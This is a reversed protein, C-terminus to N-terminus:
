LNLPWFTLPLAVTVAEGGNLSLTAINDCDGNGYDLYEDLENPQGNKLSIVAIVGGQVRRICTFPKIVPNNVDIDTKFNNIEDGHSTQKGVTHGTIEYANNIGDKWNIVTWTANGTFNKSNGNADSLTKNLIHKYVDQGTGNKIKNIQISGEVLTGNVHYNEYTTYTFEGAADEAAKFFTIIVKGSLIVGNANTFGAGYDITKTHPYVDISPSYTITRGVVKANPLTNSVANSSNDAFEGNGMVMDFNEEDSTTAEVINNTADLKQENLTNGSSSKADAGSKQCSTGILVILLLTSMIVSLVKFNSRQTM